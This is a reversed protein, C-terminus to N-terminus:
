IKERLLIKGLSTRWSALLHEGICSIGTDVVALRSGPPVSVCVCVRYGSPLVQYAQM